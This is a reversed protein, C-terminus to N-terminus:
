RGIARLIRAIVSSLDHEIQGNTFRLIRFGVTQLHHERSEDYDNRLDHSTGDVEIILRHQYCLFDVTYSGLPVQRRFKLGRLGKNRLIQWLIDEQPTQNRRLRRAFSTPSLM